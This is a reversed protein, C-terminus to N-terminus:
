HGDSVQQFRNDAIDFIREVLVASVYELLFHKVTLVYTLLSAMALQRRTWEQSVQTDRASDVISQVSQVLLYEAQVSRKHLAM